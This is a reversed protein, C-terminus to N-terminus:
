KVLAYTRMEKLNQDLLSHIDGLGKEGKAKAVEGTQKDIEQQNRKLSETTKDIQKKYPDEFQKKAREEAANVARKVKEAQINSARVKTGPGGEIYLDEAISEDYRRAQKRFETDYARQAKAELGIEFSTKPQGPGRLSGGLGASMTSLEGQRITENQRAKALDELLDIRKLMLDNLKQEAEIQRKAGEEMLKNTLNQTEIGSLAYANKIAAAKTDADKIQEIIELNKILRQQIEDYKKQEDNLQSLREANYKESMFGLALISDRVRELTEVQDQLERTTGTVGGIFKTFWNGDRISELKQTTTDLSQNISGIGKIAEDIGKIDGMRELQNIADRTSEGVSRLTDSMKSIQDTVIKVAGVAVVGALSKQLVRSFSEAAASAVDAGSKANVLESSFSKLAGAAKKSSVDLGGLSKDYKRVGSDDAQTQIQFVLPEM